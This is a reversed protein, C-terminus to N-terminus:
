SVFFEVHDPFVEIAMTFSEMQAPKLVTIPKGLEPEKRLMGIAVAGIKQAGLFNLGAENDGFVLGFLGEEKDLDAAHFRAEFRFREPVEDRWFCYKAGEGKEATGALAGGDAKWDGFPDWEALEGAVKLRRWRRPDAGSKQAIDERL